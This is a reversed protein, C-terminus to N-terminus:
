LVIYRVDNTLDYENKNIKDLILSATSLFADEVNQATKASTEFFM